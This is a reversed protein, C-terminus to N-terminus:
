CYYVFFETLAISFRYGEKKSVALAYIKDSISSTTHALDLYGLEVSKTLARDQPPDVAEHDLAELSSSRYLEV